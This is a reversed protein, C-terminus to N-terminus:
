YQQLVEVESCYTCLTNYINRVTYQDAPEIAFRMIIGQLEIFDMDTYVRIRLAEAGRGYPIQMEVWRRIQIKHNNKHFFKFSM